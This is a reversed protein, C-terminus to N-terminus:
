KILEIMAVVPSNEFTIEPFDVERLLMPDEGNCWNGSLDDYEPKTYWCSVTGPQYKDKTLWVETM